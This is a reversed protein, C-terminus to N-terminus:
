DSDLGAGCSRSAKLLMTSKNDNDYDDNQWEQRWDSTDEIKEANDEQDETRWNSAGIRRM